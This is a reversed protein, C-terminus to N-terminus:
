KWIHRQGRQVNYATLTGAEILGISQHIIFNNGKFQVCLRGHSSGNIRLTITIRLVDFRNVLLILSWGCICLDVVVSSSILKM